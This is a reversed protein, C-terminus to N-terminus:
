RSYTHLIIRYNFTLTLNLSYQSIFQIIREIGQRQWFGTVCIIVTQFRNHINMRIHIEYWVSLPIRTSYFSYIYPTIIYEQEFTLTVLHREHCFDNLQPVVSTKRGLFPRSIDLRQAVIRMTGNSQCSYDAPNVLAIQRLRGYTSVEM